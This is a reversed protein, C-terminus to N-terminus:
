WAQILLHAVFPGSLRNFGGLYDIDVIQCFLNGTVAFLDLLYTVNSMIRRMATVVTLPISAQDRYRPLWCSSIEM